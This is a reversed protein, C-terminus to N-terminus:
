ASDLALNLLADQVAFDCLRIFRTLARCESRLSAREMFTMKTDGSIEQQELFTHLVEDCAGRVLLRVDDAFEALWTAVARRKAAQAATFDSLTYVRLPDM